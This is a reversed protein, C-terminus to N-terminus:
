PIPICDLISSTATPARVKASGSPICNCVFIPSSSRAPPAITLGVPIPDAKTKPVASATDTASPVPDWNCVDIVPGCSILPFAVTSKVPM